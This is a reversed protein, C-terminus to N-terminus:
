TGLIVSVRLYREALWKEKVALSNADNVTLLILKREYEASHDTTQVVASVRALTM